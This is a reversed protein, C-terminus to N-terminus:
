VPPYVEEWDPCEHEVHQSEEPPSDRVVWCYGAENLNACGACCRASAARHSRRENRDSARCPKSEGTNEM